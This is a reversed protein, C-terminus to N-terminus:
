ISLKKYTEHLILLSLYEHFMAPSVHIHLRTQTKFYEMNHCLIVPIILTFQGVLDPVRIVVGEVTGPMYYINM